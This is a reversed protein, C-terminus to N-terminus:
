RGDGVTAGVARAAQVIEGYPNIFKMKELAEDLSVSDMKGAKPCIMLGFQPKAVPEIAAVGFWQPCRCLWKPEQGFHCLPRVKKQIRNPCM